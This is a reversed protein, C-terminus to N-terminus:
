FTGTAKQFSKIPQTTSDNLLTLYKALPTKFWEVIRGTSSKVRPRVYPSLSQRHCFFCSCLQEKVPNESFIGDEAQGKGHTRGHTYGCGNHVAKKKPNSDKKDLNEGATGNCGNFIVDM